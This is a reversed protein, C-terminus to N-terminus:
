DGQEEQGLIAELEAASVTATGLHGVAIAAAANALRAAGVLSKGAALAVGLAAAVTDGAGTVDYVERARAPIATPKGERPVLLMGQEGLTVLVGEVELLSLIQRAAALVDAPERIERATARAAEGQNPTLVTAPSYFDFNRIKPDVVAPIGMEGALRLVEPLSRRDLLGKAYDSIILGAAGELAARYRDMLAEVAWDPIPADDERDLRIMQQHQSIVRTKAPTPRGPVLVLDAPDVGRAALLEALSRGEEDDGVVSVVRAQAGLALVNAAVNAAGGPRSEEGALRVIPVPAEPSIREVRGSVYRDLLVDGIVVLRHGRWSESLSM